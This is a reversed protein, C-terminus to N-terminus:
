QLVAVGVPVAGLEIFGAVQSSTPEIVWVGKSGEECVYLWRQNGEAAMEPPVGGPNPGCFTNMIELM